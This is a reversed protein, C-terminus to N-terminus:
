GIRREIREALRQYHSAAEALALLDPDTLRGGTDGRCWASIRALSAAVEQARLHVDRLAIEYEIEDRKAADQRAVDAATTHGRFSM